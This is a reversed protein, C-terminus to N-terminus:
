LLIAGDPGICPLWPLLQFWFRPFRSIGFKCDSPILGFPCFPGGFWPLSVREGMRQKFSGDVLERCKIVPMFIFGNGIDGAITAASFWHPRIPFIFWFWFGSWTVSLWVLLFLEIRRFRRSQLWVICHLPTGSGKTTHVWLFIHNNNVFKFNICKLLIGFVFCCGFYCNFIWM